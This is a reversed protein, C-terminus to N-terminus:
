TNAGLIISVLTGDNKKSRRVEFARSATIRGYRLEHWLSSNSQERTEEQVKTILSASIKVNKLFNDLFKEKFKWMLQHMSFAQIESASHTPQYKLFECDEIKTNKGELFKLFVSSNSLILLTDKSLDKATMYKITNGVRSLKIKKWYCEVSTCSSEESRRYVWMLFAIAHKCGCDVTEDEENVVVICRYLKAHVKHEPCIKCKIICLKGDRKLQVYSVADDGYSARSSGFKRM